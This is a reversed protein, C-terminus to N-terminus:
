LYPWARFSASIGPERSLGASCGPKVFWRSRSCAGSWMIPFGITGELLERVQVRVGARGGKVSALRSMRRFISPVASLVAM